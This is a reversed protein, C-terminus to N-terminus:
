MLCPFPILGLLHVALGEGSMLARELRVKPTLCILCHRQGISLLPDINLLM